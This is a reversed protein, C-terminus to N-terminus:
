KKNSKTSTPPKGLSGALLFQNNTQQSNSSFNTFCVRQWRQLYSSITFLLKPNNAQAIFSQYFTELSLRRNSVNLDKKKGTSSLAPCSPSMTPQPFSALLMRWTDGELRHSPTQGPRVARFYGLWWSEPQQSQASYSQTHAQAGPFTETSQLQPQKLCAHM